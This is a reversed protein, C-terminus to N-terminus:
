SIGMLLISFVAVPLQTDVRIDIVRAVAAPRRISAKAALISFISSASFAAAKIIRLSPLFPTAFAQFNRYVQWLLKIEISVFSSGDGAAICGLRGICYGVALGPAYLDALKFFGEDSKRVRWACLGFAMVYGGLVSFGTTSFIMSMPDSMFDKFNELIFMIRSGVLGGFIALFHLDWALDIDCGNKKFQRNVLLFGTLFATALLIGYSGIKISGIQFLIPYM